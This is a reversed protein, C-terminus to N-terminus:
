GDMMEERSYGYSTDASLRHCCDVQVAVSADPCSFDNGSSAIFVTQRLWCGTNVAARQWGQGVHAHM